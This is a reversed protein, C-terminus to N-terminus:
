SVNQVANKMDVCRADRNKFDINTEVVFAQSRSRYKVAKQFSM